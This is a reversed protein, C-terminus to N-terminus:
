LNAKEELTSWQCQCGSNGGDFGGLSPDSQNLFLTPAPNVLEGGFWRYEINIRGSDVLLGGFENLKYCYFMKTRPDGGHRDITITIPYPFSGSPQSNTSQNSDDTHLNSHKLQTVINKQTWIQVLFRTQSWTCRYSAKSSQAGGNLDDPDVDNQFSTKNIFDLSKLFISRDFYNYFGYHETPLGRDFLKLPQHSFCYFLNAPAARGDPTVNPPPIIYSINPFQNEISTIRIRHEIHNASELFSVYFPTPEGAKIDSVIGDTTRGLFSEEDISPSIPDPSFNIAHRVAPTSHWLFKKTFRNYRNAHSFTANAETSNDWDIKIFFDSLNSTNGKDSTQLEKPLECSWKSAPIVCVSNEKILAPSIITSYGVFIPPFDTLNLWQSHSNTIKPRAGLMTVLLIIFILTLIFLFIAFCWKRWTKNRAKRRSRHDFNPYNEQYRSNKNRRHEFFFGRLMNKEGSNAMELSKLHKESYNGGNSIAPKELYGLKSNMPKQLLPSLPVESILTNSGSSITSAPLHSRFEAKSIKSKLKQPPEYFEDIYGFQKKRTSHSNPRPVYHSSYHSNQNNSRLNSISSIRNKQSFSRVGIRQPESFKLPTKDQNEALKLTEERGPKSSCDSKETCLSEEETLYVRQEGTAKSEVNLGTGPSSKVLPGISKTRISRRVGQIQPIASKVSKLEVNLCWEKQSSSNESDNSIAFFNRGTNKQVCKRAEISALTTNPIPYKTDLEQNGYNLSNSSSLYPSLIYNWWGMSSRQASVTDIKLHDNTHGASQENRSLIPSEDDEFTTCFSSRCSDISDQPIGYMRNILNGSKSSDAIRFFNRSVENSINEKQVNQNTVPTRINDSSTSDDHRQFRNSRQHASKTFHFTPSEVSSSIATQPESVGQGVYTSPLSIGPLTIPDESSSKEKADRSTQSLIKDRSLSSVSQQKFVHTSCLAGNQAFDDSHRQEQYYESGPSYDSRSTYEPFRKVKRQPFSTVLKIDRRQNKRARENKIKDPTPIKSPNSKNLAPAKSDNTPEM